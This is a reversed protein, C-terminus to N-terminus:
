KTKGARRSGRKGIRRGRTDTCEVGVRALSEDAENVVEQMDPVLDRVQNELERIAQDLQDRKRYLFGLQSKADNLIMQVRQVDDDVPMPAQGVSNSPYM